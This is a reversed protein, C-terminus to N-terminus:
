IRYKKDFGDEISNIYSIYGRLKEIEDSDLLGLKFKHHMSRIKKKMERGVSIKGDPTLILGTVKRKSKKSGSFIKQINIHIKPYEAKEFFDNIFNIIESKEIHNKSSYTTDDAYRTYTINKNKCFDFIKQDFEYLISNSILPSSPAGISLFLNSNKKKDWTLLRSILELSEHDLSESCHLKLHQLVDFYTISNFFEFFDLKVLYNSNKHPIANSLISQKKRYAKASIHIPLKEEILSIALYQLFKVEKAPQAVERLKGNKKPIKYTKYSTPARNIISRILEKSLGSNNTVYEIFNTTNLIM